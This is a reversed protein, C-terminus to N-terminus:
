QIESWKQLTDSFLDRLLVLYKPQHNIIEAPSTNGNNDILNRCFVISGPEVLSILSGNITLANVSKGPEVVWVSNTNCNAGTSTATYIKGSSIIIADIKVVYQNINVDGNVIFVLGGDGDSTHYVINEGINLNGDVFIVQTGTGSPDSFTLDSSINYLNNGSFSLPSPLSSNKSLKSQTYYLSKLAAYSPIKYPAFPAQSSIVCQGSPNGFNTSIKPASILGEARPNRNQTPCEVTPSSPGARVPASTAILDDLTSGDYAYMRYEYDGPAPTPNITFTCGAPDELKPTTGPIKTCSNSYVWSNGNVTNSKGHDSGSRFLGIWDRTTAIEAFVLRPYAIVLAFIAALCFIVFGIIPPPFKGTPM